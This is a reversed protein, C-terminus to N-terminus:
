IVGVWDIHRELWGWTVLRLETWNLRQTTDSEQCGWSACCALGGQGDGVGSTWGFGYENLRSSMWCDWGRRRGEIKGLMLTKEFWDVRQMLHGFYQLKIKLMLGELSCVPDGKPHVPPIEVYDLPSKLANELVVAWFCWNKPARSETYDLEWMWVPSPLLLGTWYKRMSFGMSPPAQYATTWPTPLLWVCSLSNVKVKMCQLLFQCGVGTNKGPSDWPRPLRTPQWRDPRM